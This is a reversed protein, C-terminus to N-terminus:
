DDTKLKTAKFFVLSLLGIFAPQSNWKLGWKKNHQMIKYAIFLNYCWTVLYLIQFIMGVLAAASGLVTALLNLVIMYAFPFVLTGLGLHLLNKNCGDQDKWSAILTGVPCFFFNLLLCILPLSGDLKAMKPFSEGGDYQLLAQDVKKFDDDKSTFM